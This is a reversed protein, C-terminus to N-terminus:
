DIPHMSTNKAESTHLYKLLNLPFNRIKLRTFLTDSKPKRNERKKELNIIKGITDVIYLFHSELYKGSGEHKV